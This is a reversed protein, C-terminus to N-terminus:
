TYNSKGGCPPVSRVDMRPLPLFFRSPRPIPSICNLPGLACASCLRSFPFPSNYITAGRGGGHPASRACARRLCSLPNRRRAQRRWALMRACISPKFFFRLPPPPIFCRQGAAALRWIRLQYPLQASAVLPGTSSSPAWVRRPASRAHVALAVNLQARRCFVAAMVQTCLRARQTFVEWNVSM